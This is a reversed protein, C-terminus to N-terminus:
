LTTSRGDSPLGPYVLRAICYLPQAAAGQLHGQKIHYINGPSLIAQIQLTFLVYTDQAQHLPLVNSSSFCDTKPM